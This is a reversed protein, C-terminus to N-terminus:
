CYGSELPHHIPEHVARYGPVPFPCHWRRWKQIHRLRHQIDPYGNTLPHHLLIVDQRSQHTRLYSHPTSHPSVHTGSPPCTIQPHIHAAVIHQSASSFYLCLRQAIKNPLNPRNGRFSTKSTKCHFLQQELVLTSTKTCWTLLRVLTYLPLVLDITEM